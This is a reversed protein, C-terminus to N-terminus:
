QFDMVCLSSFVAPRLSICRVPIPVAVTSYVVGEQLTLMVVEGDGGRWEGNGKGSGRWAEEREGPNLLPLQRV